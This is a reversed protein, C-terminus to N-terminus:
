FFLEFTFMYLPCSVLMFLYMLGYLLCKMQLKWIRLLPFQQRCVIGAVRVYVLSLIYNDTVPFIGVTFLLIIVLNECMFTIIIYYIRIQQACLPSTCSSLQIVELSTMLKLSCVPLSISTVHRQWGVGEFLRMLDYLYASVLYRAWSTSQM